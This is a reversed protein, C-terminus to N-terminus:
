KPDSPMRIPPSMRRIPLLPSLPHQNPGEANIFIVDGDLHSERANRDAMARAPPNDYYDVLVTYFGRAKLNEILAIHPRTGGLVIAVPKTIHESM